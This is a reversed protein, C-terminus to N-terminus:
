SSGNTRGQVLVCRGTAIDIHYVENNFDIAEVRDGIVQFAESFIDKGSASWVIEGNLSVRAVELEGHSLLAYRAALREQLSCAESKACPTPFPNKSWANGQQAQWSTRAVGGLLCRGSSGSAM